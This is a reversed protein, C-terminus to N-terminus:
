CYSVKKPPVRYVKDKMGAHYPKAKVGMQNFDDALHDCDSRSLCYVIGSKKAFKSKILGAIADTAKGKKNVM